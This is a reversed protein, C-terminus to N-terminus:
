ASRAVNVGHDEAHEAMPGFEEAAVIVEHGLRGLERAVTLAYTETGGPQAFSFAGLVVRM